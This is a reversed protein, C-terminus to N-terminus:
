KQQVQTLYEVIKKAGYQQAVQLPNKRTSDMAKFDCGLSVLLKVTELHGNCAACHLANQNLKDKANINAGVSLLYEIMKCSGEWAASCVAPIGYEKCNRDVKCEEILYRTFNV